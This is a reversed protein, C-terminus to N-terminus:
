LQTTNVHHNAALHMHAVAVLLRGASTRKRKAAKALVSAELMAAAQASATSLTSREDSVAPQQHQLPNHRQQSSPWHQCGQLQRGDVQMVQGTRMDVFVPM